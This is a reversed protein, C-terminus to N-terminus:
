YSGNRETRMWTLSVRREVAVLRQYEDELSQIVPDATCGKQQRLTLAKESMKEVTGEKTTGDSREGEQLIVRVQQVGCRVVLDVVILRLHEAREQLGACEQRLRRQEELLRVHRLQRICPGRSVTAVSLVM